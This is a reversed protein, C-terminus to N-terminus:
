KILKFSMSKTGNNVHLIRSIEKNRGNFGKSISMNEYFEGSDLMRGNLDFLTFSTHESISSTILWESPTSSLTWVENGEDLREINSTGSIVGKLYHTTGSATNKYVLHIFEGDYVVSPNRNHGSLEETVNFISNSLASPGIDSVSVMVDYGSSNREWAAVLWDGSASLSPHNETSNNLPDIRASEILTFTSLDVSSWYVRSGDPANMFASVLTGDSLIASSAGSAPCSSIYWDAPDIDIAEGWNVGDPSKLLWFDRINSNNNRVVDYFIGDYFFPNSPCCECVPQGATAIGANLAPEFSDTDSNFLHVGEYTPTTRWKLAAWPQSNGDFAINPMFHDETALPALPYPIGWTLGSDESIVVYAGTDWQGSIQYSVAVRNGSVAIRPGESESLYINTEETVQIPAGFSLGDWISLYLGANNGSKGHLVMPNGSSNLVIRSCKNGFDQTSVEIVSDWVISPQAHNTRPVFSM